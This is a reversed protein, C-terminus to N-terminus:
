NTGASTNLLEVQVPMGDPLRKDVNLVDIKALYTLKGRDKETIAFYPTFAADNAIFRVRGTISNSYGDMHINVRDGVHVTARVTEPVYVRAYPQTNPVLVVAPQGAQPREGVQFPLSDVIGDIPATLNLRDQDIQLGTVQAQAQALQQQVQTLEEVTTGNLLEELQATLSQLKANASSLATKALDRQEKSALQQQELKVARNFEVQRYDRESKAGQLAAQAALIKEQRPGRILEDLRAQIQAANAKAATIATAKRDQNQQLLLTGAKVAQGEKVPISVIPEPFEATIEVRDSELQGVLWTEDQQQSCAGLCIALILLLTRTFRDTNGPATNM